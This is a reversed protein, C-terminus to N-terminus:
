KRVELRIYDGFGAATLEAADDPSIYHRHGGRYFRDLGEIESPVPIYSASWEGDIRAISMAELWYGWLGSNRDFRFDREQAPTELILFEAHAHARAHRPPPLVTEVRTTFGIRHSDAGTPATLSATINVHWNPSIAKVLGTTMTPAPVAAASRRHHGPRVDMTGIVPAPVSATLRTHQAQVYQRGVLVPLDVPMTM